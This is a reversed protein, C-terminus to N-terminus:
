HIRTSIMRHTKGGVVGFKREEVLVFFDESVHFTIPYDGHMAFVEFMPFTHGFDDTGMFPGGIVTAVLGNYIAADEKLGKFAVKKGLLPHETQQPRRHQM